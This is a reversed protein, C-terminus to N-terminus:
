VALKAHANEKSDILLGKKKLERVYKAVERLPMATESAIDNETPAADGFFYAKLFFGFCIKAGPSLDRRRAVEEPIAIGDM